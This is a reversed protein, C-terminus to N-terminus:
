TSLDPLVLRVYQSQVHQASFSLPACIRGTNMESSGSRSLTVCTRGRAHLTKLDM